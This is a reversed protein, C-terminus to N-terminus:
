LANLSGEMGKQAAWAELILVTELHNGARALEVATRGMSGGRVFVDVDARQLLRKVIDGEGYEVAIMLATRGTPARKNVKLDKRSLLLNIIEISFQSTAEILPTIGRVNTANVDVDQRQVFYEVGPTFNRAVAELFPTRHQSTPVNVKTLPCDGLIQLLPLDGRVIAKELTSRSDTGSTSTPDAGLSLTHQVAALDGEDIAVHLKSTLELTSLKLFQAVEDHRRTYFLPTRGFEDIPNVNQNYDKILIRCIVLSEAAAALHLPMAGRITRTDPLAGRNLLLEVLPANRNQCAVHLISRGLIDQHNIGSIVRDYAEDCETPRDSVLFQRVRSFAAEDDLYDVSRILANRGLCDEVDDPTTSTAQTLPLATYGGSPLVCLSSRYSTPIGLSGTGEVGRSIESDLRQLFTEFERHHSSHTTGYLFFHKRMTGELSKLYNIAPLVIARFMQLFAWEEAEQEVNCAIPLLPATATPRPSKRCRQARDGESCPLHREVCRDCRQPWKRDTPLCKQKDKRCSECKIYDLRRKKRPVAVEGTGVTHSTLGPLLTRSSNVAPGPAVRNDHLPFTSVMRPALALPFMTEPTGPQHFSM